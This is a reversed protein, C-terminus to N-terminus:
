AILKRAKEAALEVCREAPLKKLVFNQVMEPFVFGEFIKGPRTDPAPGETDISGITATRLFGKMIDVAWQYKKVLPHAKWRPHEYVSWRTPQYHLILTEYFDILRETLLWELFKYGEESHPGRPVVWGDYGHNVATRSGDSSPYAMMGFKDTLQPAFRELHHIMRGSYAAMAVKDSAFLTLNEAFGIQAMGPPMTKYLEGFFTLYRVLKPKMAPSDILVRWQDDFLKFGDAWLYAFTLWNAAPGSGVPLCIGYRDPTGKRAPDEVCAQAVKLFDDYSRPERLGKQAFLDKRYFLNAFNYDYPYWWIQGDMPFLIRPGFDDRGIKDILPTLPVLGNDRALLLVDGIFLINSVDYPKGAKISTALKTFAGAPQITDIEFRIGHRAEYDTAAQKFMAVTNPDTEMNMMKLVLKPQAKTSRPVFVTGATVAAAGKMFTRRNM